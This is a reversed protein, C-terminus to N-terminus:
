LKLAARPKPYPRPSDWVLVLHSYQHSDRSVARSMTSLFHVTTTLLLDRKVKANQLSLYSNTFPTPQRCNHKQISRKGQYAKHANYQNQISRLWTLTQHPPYEANLIFCLFPSHLPLTTCSITRLAQSAWPKDHLMEKSRYRFLGLRKKKKKRHPSPRELEQFLNKGGPKRWSLKRIRIVFAKTKM